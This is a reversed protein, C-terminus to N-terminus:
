GGAAVRSFVTEALYAAFIGFLYILSYAFLAKAPRMLRDDPQMRLVRWAEFVFGLGLV